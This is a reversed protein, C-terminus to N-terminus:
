ESKNNGKISGSLAREHGDVMCELSFQKLVRERANKSMRQYASDDGLLEITRQVVMRIDGFPVLFGTEGDVVLDRTGRVDFGVVPLGSAMAELVVMPLGESESLHWFLHVTRMIEFADNRRGMLEASSKLGMESILGELEPRYAGDGVIMLKAKPFYSLLAGLARIGSQQGKNPSLTGLMMIFPADDLLKPCPTFSLVDVGNPVNTFRSRDVAFHAAAVEGMSPALDIYDPKLRRDALRDGIRMLWDKFSGNRTITGYGHIVHVCPINLDAWAAVWAVTPTHIEIVDPKFEAVMDRLHKAAQPISWPWRYEEKPMLFHRVIPSYCEEEYEDVDLWGVVEVIHGKARLGLAIELLVREAGGRRLSHALFLIRMPTNVTSIAFKDKL